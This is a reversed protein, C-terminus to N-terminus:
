GLDHCDQMRTEICTVLDMRKLQVARDRACELVRSRSSEVAPSDLQYRWATWAANLLPLVSDNRTELAQELGKQLWKLTKLALDERKELGGSTQLVALAAADALIEDLASLHARQVANRLAAATEFDSQAALGPHDIANLTKCVERETGSSSAKM